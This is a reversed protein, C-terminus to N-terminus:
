DQVSGRRYSTGIGNLGTGLWTSEDNLVADEPTDPRIIRHLIRGRRGYQFGTMMGASFHQVQNSGDQFRRKFGSDTFEGSGM